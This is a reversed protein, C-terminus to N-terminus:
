AAKRIKALCLGLVHASAHLHDPVGDPLDVTFSEEDLSPVGLGDLIVLSEELGRSYLELKARLVSCVMASRELRKDNLWSLYAVFTAQVLVAIGLIIVLATTAM